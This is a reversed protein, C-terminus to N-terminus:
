FDSIRGKTYNGNVLIDIPNQDMPYFKKDGHTQRCPNMGGFGLGKNRKDEAKLFNQIWLTFNSIASTDM